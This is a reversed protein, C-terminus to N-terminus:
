FMRKLIGDRDILTHKLVAGLHLALLSILLFALGVHIKDTLLRLPESPAILLPWNFLGFFSVPHNGAMRHIYGSLPLAVLVGYLTWHVAKSVRKQWAPMSAADKPPQHKARWVLRVLTLWFVLAGMSAHFFLLDNWEPAGHKYGPFHEMRLGWFLNLLVLLATIGHLAKATPTYTKRFNNDTPNM